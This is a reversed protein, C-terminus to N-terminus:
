SNVVVLVYSGNQYPSVKSSYKWKPFSRVKEGSFKCIGIKYNIMILNIFTKLINENRERKRDKSKEIWRDKM